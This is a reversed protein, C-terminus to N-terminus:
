TPEKVAKYKNQDSFTYEADTIMFRHYHVFAYVSIELTIVAYCVGGSVAFSYSIMSDSYM